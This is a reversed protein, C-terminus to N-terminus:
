KHIRGTALFRQYERFTDTRRMSQLTTRLVTTSEFSEPLRIVEDPNNFTVPKYRMTLDDRELVISSDFGYRHQLTLPVRIDVVGDLRRDLRLVDSTNADVWLRGRTAVPGSWDFCGDHGRTDEILEPKSKRNASMFDLVLAAHGNDKGDRLSTFLYEGRHAPLLFALMEPSLLEPDTCGARAKKDRERPAQGNVKRIDRIVKAGPLETGDASDATDSEIRVESEVTRAFGEPMFNSRIPQVTSSEVFMVRQSQRYYGAVREGIRTMVSEIDPPTQPAASISVWGACLAVISMGVLRARGHPRM